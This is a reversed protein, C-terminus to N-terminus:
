AQERCMPESENNILKGETDFELHYVIDNETVDVKFSIGGREGKMSKINTLYGERFHNRIYTSVEHHPLKYM